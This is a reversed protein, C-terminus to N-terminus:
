VALMVGEGGGQAQDETDFPATRQSRGARVRGWGVELM